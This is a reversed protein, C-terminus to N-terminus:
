KFMFISLLVVAIIAWTIYSNMRQNRELVQIRKNLDENIRGFYEQNRVEIENALDAAAKTGSHILTSLNKENVAIRNVIPKCLEDFNTESLKSIFGDVAEELKELNLIFKGYAVEQKNLIMNTTSSTEQVSKNVSDSVQATLMKLKELFDSLSRQWNDAMGNIREDFIQQSDSLGVMFPESKHNMIDYVDKIKKLLDVMITTIEKGSGTVDLVQKRASELKDLNKEIQVLTQEITNSSM